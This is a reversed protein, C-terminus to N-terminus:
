QVDMFPAHIFSVKCVFCRICHLKPTFNLIRTFVVSFLSYAGLRNVTAPLFDYTIDDINYLAM